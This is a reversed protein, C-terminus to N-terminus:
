DEVILLIKYKLKYNSLKYKNHKIQELTIDITIKLLKYLNPILLFYFMM